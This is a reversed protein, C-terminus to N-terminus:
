YQYELLTEKTKQINYEDLSTKSLVPIDMETFYKYFYVYTSTEFSHYALTYIRLFLHNLNYVRIILYIIILVSLVMDLKEIQM